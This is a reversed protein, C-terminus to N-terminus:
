FNLHGDAVTLRMSVGRQDRVVLVPPEWRIESTVDDLQVSIQNVDGDWLRVSTECVLLWNGEPIAFVVLIDEGTRMEILSATPSGPLVVLHRASWVYVQEGNVGYSIEQWGPEEFSWERGDDIAITVTISRPVNMDDVHVRVVRTGAVLTSIRTTM